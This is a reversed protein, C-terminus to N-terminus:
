QAARWASLVDKTGDAPFNEIYSDRFETFFLPLGRADELTKSFYPINKFEKRIQKAIFDDTAKPNTDEIQEARELQWQNMKAIARMRKVAFRNALNPNEITTNIKGAADFERQNIAGKLLQTEMIQMKSSIAEITTLNAVDKAFEDGFGGLIAINALGLRLGDFAGTDLATGEVSDLAQDLLNANNLTDQAAIGNSAIDRLFDQRVEKLVTGGRQDATNITIGTSPTIIKNILLGIQTKRRPDQEAAFSDQLELLRDQKLDTFGAQASRQEDTLPEGTITEATTVQAQGEQVAAEEPTLAGMAGAFISEIQLAINPKDQAAAHFQEAGKILSPPVEKGNERITKISVALQTASNILATTAASEQEAGFKKGALEFRQQGLALNGENVAATRGAIDRRFSADRERVVGGLVDGIAM